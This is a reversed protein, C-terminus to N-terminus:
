TTEGHFALAILSLSDVLGQVTQANYHQFGPSTELPGDCPLQEPKLGLKHSNAMFLRVGELSLRSSCVLDAFSLVISTRISLLTKCTGKRFM